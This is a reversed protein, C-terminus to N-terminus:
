AESADSRITLIDAVFSDSVSVGLDLLLQHLARLYYGQLFFRQDASVSSEVSLLAQEFAIQFQAAAALSASSADSSHRSMFQLYRASLGDEFNRVLDSVYSEQQRAKFLALDLEYAKDRVDQTRFYSVLASHADLEPALLLKDIKRLRDNLRHEYLRRVLDQRASFHGYITGLGVGAVEALRRMTLAALGDSLIIAEANELLKKATRKAREQKM